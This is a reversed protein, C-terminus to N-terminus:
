GSRREGRRVPRVFGCGWLSLLFVLAGSLPGVFFLLAVGTFSAVLGGFGPGLILGLDGAANFIGSAVGRSFRSEEMDEVMGITNAVIVVNGRMRRFAPLREPCRDLNQSILDALMNALGNDEAGKDVTVRATSM